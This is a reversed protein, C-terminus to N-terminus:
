TKAREKGWHQMGPSGGGEVGENAVCHDENYRRNKPCGSFTGTELPALFVFEMFSILGNCKM